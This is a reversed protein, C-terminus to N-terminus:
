LIEGPIGSFVILATIGDQAKRCKNGMIWNIKGTEQKGAWYIYTYDERDRFLEPHYWEKCGNEKSMFCGQGALFINM